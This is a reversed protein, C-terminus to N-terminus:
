NTDNIFSEGKWFYQCIVNGLMEGPFLYMEYIHALKYLPDM